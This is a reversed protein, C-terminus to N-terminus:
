TLIHFFMHFTHWSIYYKSLLRWQLVSFPDNMRDSSMVAKVCCTENHRKQQAMLLLCSLVTVHLHYWIGSLCGISGDLTPHWLCTSLIPPFPAVLIWCVSSNYIHFTKTVSNVIDVETINFVLIFSEGVWLGSSCRMRFGAPSPIHMNIAPPVLLQWYKPQGIPSGVM